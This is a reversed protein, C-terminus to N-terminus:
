EAIKKITTCIHEAIIDKIDIFGSAKNVMMVMLEM